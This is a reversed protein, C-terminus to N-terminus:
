RRWKAVAASSPESGFTTEPTHCHCHDITATATEHLPGDAQSGGYVRQLLRRLWPDWVTLHRSLKSLSIDSTPTKTSWSIPTFSTWDRLFPIYNRAQEPATLGGSHARDRRMPSVTAKESVSHTLSHISLDTHRGMVIDSSPHIHRDVNYCIRNVCLLVQHPVFCNM